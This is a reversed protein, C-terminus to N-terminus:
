GLSSRSPPFVCWKSVMTAVDYIEIAFEREPNYPEALIGSAVLRSADATLALDTIRMPTSGWDEHTQGNPSWRIIRQDMSGTLFGSADPLWVISSVM